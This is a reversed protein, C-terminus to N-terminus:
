ASFTGFASNIAESTSISVLNMAIMKSFSIMTGTMLM